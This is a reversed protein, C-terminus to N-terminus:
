NKLRYFENETHDWGARIILGREWLDRLIADVKSRSPLVFRRRCAYRLRYSSIRLWYKFARWGTLKMRAPFFGRADKLAAKLYMEGVVGNASQWPGDEPDSRFTDLVKNELKKRQGKHFWILGQLITGVGLISVIVQLFHHAEHFLFTM